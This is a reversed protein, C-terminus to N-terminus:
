VSCEAKSRGPRRGGSYGALTGPQVKPAEPEPYRRVAQLGSQSWEADAWGGGGKIIGETVERKEFPELEDAPVRDESVLVEQLLEGRIEEPVGSMLKQKREM